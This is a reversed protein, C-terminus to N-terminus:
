DISGPRCISMVSCALKCASFLQESCRGAHRTVGERPAIVSFCASTNVVERHSIGLFLSLALHESFIHYPSSSFLIM